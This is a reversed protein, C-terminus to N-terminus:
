EPMYAFGLLNLNHLSHPLGLTHVNAWVRYGERGGAGNTNGEISTFHKGDADVDIVIGTHGNTGDGEQWIAVAGLRPLTGTIVEKSAKFNLWMTHTSPSCYKKLYALIIPADAYAGFLVVMVFFACWSASRYFGVALMKKQFAADKFGLNPPIEEQGIYSKAQKIIEDIHSM